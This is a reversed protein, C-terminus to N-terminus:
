LPALLERMDSITDKNWDGSVTSCLTVIDGDEDAGNDITLAGGSGGDSCCDDDDDVVIICPTGGLSGGVALLAKDGFINM